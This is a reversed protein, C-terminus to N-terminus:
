PNTSAGPSAAPRGLPFLLRGHSRRRLEFALSTVSGRWYTLRGEPLVWSVEGAFPVTMGDQLRHDWWRWEWPAMAVDAGSGRGRAEARGSAILGADDFRFLLTVRNEGDVITATASRDDVAAWRVGQSPLLATPYWAAEALYRMLESRAIEGGGRLAAVSWLGQVSADLVGERAVYADHVRVAVGPLLDVRANWVFGPHRTVVRQTATFPKWQGGAPAMDIMGAQELSVAAVIPQGEKLVARFYRQVPEPLGDLERPDYRAPSAPAIGADLRWVLVRSAETWRRSGEISLVVAVAAIACVVIAGGALRTPM